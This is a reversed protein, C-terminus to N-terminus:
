FCERDKRLEEITQSFVLPMRSIRRRLSVLACVAALLCGAAGLAAVPWRWEAPTALLVALVALSLGMVLLAAGLCALLLLQVLRIKAERAELGLLTLRDAALDLAVAGLRGCAALLESLEAMAGAM